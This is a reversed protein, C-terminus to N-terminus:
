HLHPLIVLSLVLMVVDRRLGSDKVLHQEQNLVTGFSSVYVFVSIINTLAIFTSVCLLAENMNKM